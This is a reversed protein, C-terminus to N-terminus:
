LRAGPLGIQDHGMEHHLLRRHDSTEPCSGSRDDDNQELLVADALWTIADAKPFIGIGGTRRRIEGNLRELPNTSHLKARHRPRLEHLRARRTPRTVTATAM